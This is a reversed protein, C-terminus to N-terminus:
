QFRRWGKCLEQPMGPPAMENLHPAEAGFALVFKSPFQARCANGKLLRCSTREAPQSERARNVSNRVCNHNGGNHIDMEM